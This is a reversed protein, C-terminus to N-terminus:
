MDGNSFIDFIKTLFFKASFNVFHLKACRCHLHNLSLIVEVPTVGNIRIHSMQGSHIYHLKSNM